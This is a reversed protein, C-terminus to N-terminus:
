EHAYTTLIKRAPVCSLTMIDLNEVYMTLCCTKYSFLSRFCHLFFLSSLASIKDCAGPLQNQIKNDRLIDLQCYDPKQM